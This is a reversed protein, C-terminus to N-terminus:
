VFNSILKGGARDLYYLIPNRVFGTVFVKVPVATELSAYVGVLDKFVKRVASEIVNNLEANRV